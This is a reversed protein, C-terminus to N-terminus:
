GGAAIAAPRGEGATRSLTQLARNRARLEDPALVPPPMDLAGPPAIALGPPSAAALDALSAAGTSPQAQRRPKWGLLRAIIQTMLHAPPNDEW